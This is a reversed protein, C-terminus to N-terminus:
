FEESRPRSQEVGTLKDRLTRLGAVYRRHATAASTEAVAAIEQFTLGGWLHAVIVEREDNPLSALAATTESADLRAGEPATFWPQVLEAAAAEHRRRRGESRAATLAGNRVVRYLWAAVQDPSTRQTALQVFAQQVVDDPVHCWQRAYLELAAAHRDWLQGLLEPSVASMPGATPKPNGTADNV